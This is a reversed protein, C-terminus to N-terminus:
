GDIIEQRTVGCDDCWYRAHDWNAHDCSEQEPERNGQRIACRRRHAAPSDRLIANTIGLIVSDPM